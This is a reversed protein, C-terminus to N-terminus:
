HPKTVQVIQKGAEADARARAKAERDEKDFAMGHQGKIELVKRNVGERMSIAAFQHMFEMFLMRKARVADAGPGVLLKSPEEGCLADAMKQMAAFMKPSPTTDM